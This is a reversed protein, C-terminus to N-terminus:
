NTEKKEIKKADNLEDTNENIIENYKALEKLTVYGKEGLLGLEPMADNMFIYLMREGEKSVDFGCDARDNKVIWEYKLWESVINRQFFNKERYERLEKESKNTQKSTNYKRIYSKETINEELSTGYMRDEPIIVGNLTFWIGDKMLAEIITKSSRTGKQMKDFVMLAQLLELDPTPIKYRKLSSSTVGELTRKEKIKEESNFAYWDEKTEKRGILLVDDYMMGLITAASCFEGSGDAIDILAENGVKKIDKILWNVVYLMEDYDYIDTKVVQITSRKFKQKQLYDMIEISKKGKRIKALTKNVLVIAGDYQVIDLFRTTKEIDSDACVIIMRAPVRDKSMIRKNVKYILYKLM